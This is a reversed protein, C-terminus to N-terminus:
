ALETINVYGSADVSWIGDVAGTYIPLPMEWYGDAPIKVSYGGAAISATAGYKVYLTSSSNNHLLVGRRSSNSALLSASSATDSVNSLTASSAASPAVTVTGTVRTVDVDLGNAADAPILTGSGDTSIALKMVQAHGGAGTDDTM